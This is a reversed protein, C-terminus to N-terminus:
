THAFRDLLQKMAATRAAQVLSTGNRGRSHVDAGRELLLAALNIKGCNVARRLPTDGVSDRAEIDAGCDLLARAVSVNGRRAAMHLATCRKVGDQADLNAGRQALLRVVDGGTDASCENGVCYLPAHGAEDTTNPDAGLQLLLEVVDLSGAAAAGHLLTRGSAYREGVLAPDSLLTQRVHDLLIGDSSATMMALLSVFAARDGSFYAKLESSQALSIARDADARRVAGAAEELLVRVKWRRAIEKQIGNRPPLKRDVAKPPGNEQNVMYASSQEFFWSLARRVPEQLELEALVQRMNKVWANREALGIEFREHAERLSLWWSRESYERPGGLFQAMFSTLAEIACRHSSPFLSGIVPDLGARAYFATSLKRCGEMGGVAEYLEDSARYELAPRSGSKGDM